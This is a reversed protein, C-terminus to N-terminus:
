RKVRRWMVMFETAANDVKVAFGYVNSSLPALVGHGGSGFPIFVPPQNAPVIVTFWVTTGDRKYFTITTSSSHAKTIAIGDVAVPRNDTGTLGSFDSLAVDNTPAGTGATGALPYLVVNATTAGLAAASDVLLNGPALTSIAAM